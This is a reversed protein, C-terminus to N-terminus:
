GSDSSACIASSLVNILNISHHTARRCGSCHSLATCFAAKRTVHSSIAVPVADQGSILKMELACLAEIM